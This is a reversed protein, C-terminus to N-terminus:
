SRRLLVMTAGYGYEKFSADQYSCQPYNRRLSSVVEHRLRGNGVGHIAVLRRVQPSALADQMAHDFRRMQYALIDQASVGTDDRDTLVHMHLDIVVEEGGGGSKVPQPKRADNKGRKAQEVREAVLSHLLAERQTDRVSILLLSCPLFLNEQFAGPRGFRVPNVELEAVEPQPLRCPGDSYYIAQLLLLRYGELEWVALRKVQRAANPEVRGAFFTATQAGEMRGLTAYCTYPSANIIYVRYPGVAPDKEDEAQFGVHLGLGDSTATRLPLQQQPKAPVSPSAEAQEQRPASRTRGMPLDLLLEGGATPIEFGASDRVLYTNADLVEVIVGGGVDNLFRVRDGKSFKM